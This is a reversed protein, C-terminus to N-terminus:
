SSNKAPETQAFILLISGVVGCVVCLLAVTSYNSIVTNIETVPWFIHMDPYILMDLFLHFFIVGIFFHIILPKFNRISKFRSFFFIAGSFIMSYCLAGIITHSFGHLPVEPNFFIAYIGQIDPAVAGLSLAAWKLETKVGKRTFFAWVLFVPGWHLPTFPM